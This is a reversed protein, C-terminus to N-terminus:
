RSVNTYARPTRSQRAVPESGDEAGRREALAVIRALAVSSEPLHNRALVLLGRITEGYPSLQDSRDVEVLVRGFLWERNDPELKGIVAEVFHDIRWVWSEGPAALGFLCCALDASLKDSKVLTALAPGLSLGLDAQDRDDLRASTALIGLGAVPVMANAYELWPYKSDESLNLELIRALDHAASASLEPGPYNAVLELLHNTRDFDDSGIADALDLTRRFLVASESTSVRWVARALAGYASIRSGIDTDRLILNEVHVALRLAADHCEEVRSLRAVVATLQPIHLGPAVELWSAIRDGFSRDIAGTADAVRFLAHFGTRALYAKGDRYPYNSTQEVNAQLRDLAANLVSLGDLGPPPRLTDAVAQAYPMLPKIRESLARQYETRREYDLSPKRRRKPVTGSRHPDTLKNELAKAFAAPGRARVSPSVLSLLEAPALDLLTVQRGAVAARVGAAFVATDAERDDIWQSTYTYLSPASTAAAALITRAETMMGLDIARAAGALAAAM